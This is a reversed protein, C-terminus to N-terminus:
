GIWTWTHAQDTQGKIRVSGAQEAIIQIKFLILLGTLVLM